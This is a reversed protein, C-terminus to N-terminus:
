DSHCKQKPQRTGAPQVVVDTRIAFLKVEHGAVAVKAMLEKLGAWLEHYERAEGTGLNVCLM